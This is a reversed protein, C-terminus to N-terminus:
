KINNVIDVLSDVGSSWLSFGSSNYIDVFKRNKKVFAFVPIEGINNNTWFTIDTTGLVNFYKKARQTKELSKVAQELISDDPLALIVICKFSNDDFVGRNILSDILFYGSGYCGSLRYGYILYNYDPSIFAGLTDGSKAFPELINLKLINLPEDSQAYITIASFLILAFISIIKRKM